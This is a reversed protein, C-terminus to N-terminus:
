ILYALFIYANLTLTEKPLLGTEQNTKPAETQVMACLTHQQSYFVLVDLLPFSSKIHVRADSENKSSSNSTRKTQQSHKHLLEAFLVGFIVIHNHSHQLVHVFGYNTCLSLQVLVDLIVVSLDSHGRRTAM